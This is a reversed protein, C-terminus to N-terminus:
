EMRRNSWILLRLSVVQSRAKLSKPMRGAVAPLNGDEITPSSADGEAAFARPDGDRLPTEGLINRNSLGITDGVLTVVDVLRVSWHPAVLHIDRSHKNTEV